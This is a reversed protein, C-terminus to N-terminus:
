RRYCVFPIAGRLISCYVGTWAASLSRVPRLLLSRVESILEADCLNAQLASVLAERINAAQQM